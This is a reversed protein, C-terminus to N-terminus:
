PNTKKGGAYEGAQKPKARDENSGKVSGGGLKPKDGPVKPTSRKKPGKM